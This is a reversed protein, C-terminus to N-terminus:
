IHVSDETCNQLSCHCMMRHKVIDLSSLFPISSISAIPYVAIIIELYLAPQLCLIIISYLRCVTERLTAFSTANLHPYDLARHEVRRREPQLFCVSTCLFVSIDAILQWFIYRWCTGSDKTCSCLTSLITGMTSVHRRRVASNSPLFRLLFPNRWVKISSQCFHHVRSLVSGPSASTRVLPIGIVACFELVGDM